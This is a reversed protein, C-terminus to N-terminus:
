LKQFFYNEVTTHWYDGDLRFHLCQARLPGTRKDSHLPLHLNLCAKLSRSLLKKVFAFLNLSLSAFPKSHLLTKANSWLFHYQPFSSRQVTFLCHTVLMSYYNLGYPSYSKESDNGSDSSLNTYAAQSHYPFARSGLFILLDLLNNAFHYTFGVAQFALACM